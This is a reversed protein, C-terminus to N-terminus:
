IKKLLTAVWLGLNGLWTQRYVGSQWVHRLRNPLFSSQARAFRAIIECNEPRIFNKPLSQLAAINTANWNAFTGNLMMAARTIRAHWGLNSGILNSSHQRYKLVPRPDYHVRGGAGSILQYTWWDHVVVQHEGAIELLTKAARNFVMTNGAAINQILANRFSPPRSFCTSLGTSRGDASVLETRGCYLAPMDQSVTVLWNLARELKDPYWLDDQDCYAFYDATISPDIALSLFNACPGRRPGERIVVKQRVSDAFRKLVDRTTDTSGDDSAILFWNSHTQDALSRLQEDIFAAGDRTCLLIAVSPEGPHAPPMRAEAFSNTM